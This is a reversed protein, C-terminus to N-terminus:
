ESAAQAEWLAQAVVVAALAAGGMAAQRGKRPRAAEALMDALAAGVAVADVLLATTLIGQV